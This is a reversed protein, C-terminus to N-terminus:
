MTASAAAAPRLLRIKAIVSEQIHGAHSRCKDIPGLVPTALATKM